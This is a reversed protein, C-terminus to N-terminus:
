VTSVTPVGGVDVIQPLYQFTFKMIFTQKFQHNTHQIIILTVQYTSVHLTPSKLNPIM